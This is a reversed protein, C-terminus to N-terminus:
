WLGVLSLGDRINALLLLIAAIMLLAVIIPTDLRTAAPQRNRTTDM